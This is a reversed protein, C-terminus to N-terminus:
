GTLTKAKEKQFINEFVETNWDLLAEKLLHLSAPLYRVSSWNEEVVLKFDHHEMSAVLFRLSRKGIGVSEFPSTQLFIPYHDSHSYTLSM